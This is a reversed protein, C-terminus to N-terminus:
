HSGTQQDPKQGLKQIDLQPLKVPWPVHTLTWAVSRTMRDVFLRDLKTEEKETFVRDAADLVLREARAMNAPNTMKLRGVTLVLRILNEMAPAMGMYITQAVDRPVGFTESFLILGSLPTLTYAKM